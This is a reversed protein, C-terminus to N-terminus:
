KGLKDRYWDIAKDKSALQTNQNQIVEDKAKLQKEYSEELKKFLIKCTAFAGGGVVVLVLVVGMRDLSEIPVGFFTPGETAALVAGASVTAAASAVLSCITDVPM